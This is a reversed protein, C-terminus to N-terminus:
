IRLREGNIWQNQHKMVLFLNSVVDAARGLWAALSIIRHYPLWPCSYLVQFLLLLLMLTEVKWGDCVPAAVQQVAVEKIDCRVCGYNKTACSSGEYWMQCM